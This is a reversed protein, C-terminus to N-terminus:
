RRCGISLLNQSRFPPFFRLFYHAYTWGGGAKKKGTSAAPCLGSTASEIWVAGKRKKQWLVVVVVLRPDGTGGLTPFKQCTAM